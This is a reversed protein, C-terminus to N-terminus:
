ESRLTWSVMLFNSWVLWVGKVGSFVRDELVKVTRLFENQSGVLSLGDDGMKVLFVLECSVLLRNSPLPTVSGGFIVTCLDWLAALSTLLYRVVFISLSTWFSSFFPELTDSSPSSTKFVAVGVTLNLLGEGLRNRFVWATILLSFHLSLYLVCCLKSEDFVRVGREGVIFSRPLLSHKWFTDAKQFLGLM